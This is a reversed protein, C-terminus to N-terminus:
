SEPYTEFGEPPTPSAWGEDPGGETEGSEPEQAPEAEPEARDFRREPGTGFGEPPGDTNNV